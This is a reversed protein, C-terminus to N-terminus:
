FIGRTIAHSILSLKIVLRMVCKLSCLNGTSVRKGTNKKFKLVVPKSLNKVERGVISSALVPTYVRKEETTFGNECTVSIKTRRTFFNNRKYYVFFISENKSMSSNTGFLAEAPVTVSTGGKEEFVIDRKIRGQVIKIKQVIINESTEKRESDEVDVKELWNELIKVYRFILLISHNYLPVSFPM